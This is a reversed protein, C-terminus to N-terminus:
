IEFAVSYLTPVFRILVMPLCFHNDNELPLFILCLKPLLFYLYDHSFLLSCCISPKSGGTFKGSVPFIFADRLCTLHSIRPNRFFAKVSFFIKKKILSSFFCTGILSMIVLFSMNSIIYPFGLSLITRGLM